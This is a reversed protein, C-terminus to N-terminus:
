GKDFLFRYEADGASRRYSELANESYLAPLPTYPNVAVLVPGARTYIQRHAYRCSVLHFLAPENLNSLSGIDDLTDQIVPNAAQLASSPVELRSGDPLRIAHHGNSHSHEVLMFPEAALGQIQARLTPPLRDVVLWSRAEQM